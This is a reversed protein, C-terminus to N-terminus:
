RRVALTAAFTANTGGILNWALRVLPGAFNNMTLWYNGTAIDTAAALSAPTGLPAAQSGIGSWTTGGDMSVQLGFLFSTFTGTKASISLFVAGAEYGSVDIVPTANSAGAAILGSAKLTFVDSKLGM